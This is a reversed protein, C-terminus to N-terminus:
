ATIGKYYQIITKDIFDILSQPARSRPAITEMIDRSCLCRGKHTKTIGINVCDNYISNCFLVFFSALYKGRIIQKCLGSEKVEMIINSVENADQKSYDVSSKTYLINITDGVSTKFSIVGDRVIFIDEIKFNNYYAPNYNRRKWMIINAMIPLMKDLFDCFQLNYLEKLKHLEEMPTACFGLIDQMVVELTDANLIDNEISYNDTIYVHSDIILNNDEVFSSLDRDMFYVIRENSINKNKHIEDFVYKVNGKGGSPYLIIRCDNNIKNKIVARYYSPDDKGEVFGYYIKVDNKYESLFQLLPIARGNREQRLAEVTGM